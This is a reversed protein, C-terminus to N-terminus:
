PSRVAAQEPAGCSAQLVNRAHLAQALWQACHVPLRLTNVRTM